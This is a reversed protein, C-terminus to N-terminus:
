PDIRVTPVRRVEVGPPQYALADFKIFMCRAGPLDARDCEKHSPYIAFVAGGVILFWIGTM